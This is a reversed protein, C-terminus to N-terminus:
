RDVLCRRFDGYESAPSTLKLAALVGERVDVVGGAFTVREGDRYRRRLPAVALEDVLSRFVCGTGSM